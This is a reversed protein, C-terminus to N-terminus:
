KVIDYALLTLFNHFRHATMEWRNAAFQEAVHMQEAFQKHFASGGKSLSHIRFSSIIDSVFLPPGFKNQIRLWYDYDMVYRLKENLLGVEKIVSLRVFTSPQIIPNLILLQRPFYLSRCIKKWSRVLVNHVLSNKESIVNYDGTLWMLGPNSNFYNAVKKFINPSNYLDDSNIFAFIVDHYNLEQEDAVKMFYKIALNIAHTQGKDKKSVVSVKIRNKAKTSKIVSVTDDSSGGDQIRYIVDVGKQAMVSNITHVIYNGQNYSPTAIAFLKTPM